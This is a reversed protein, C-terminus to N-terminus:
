ILKPVVQRIGPIQVASFNFLALDKGERKALEAINERAALFEASTRVPFGSQVLIHSSRRYIGTLDATERNHFRDPLIMSGALRAYVRHDPYSLDIGALYIKAGPAALLLAFAFAIGAVTGPSPLSLPFDRDEGHMKFYLCENGADHPLNRQCGKHYFLITENKLSKLYWHRRNEVTVICRRLTPYLQLVGEAVSDSLIFLSDEPFEALHPILFDLSPSGGLVVINKESNRVPPAAIQCRM